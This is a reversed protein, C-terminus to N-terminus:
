GSVDLCFPAAKAIGLGAAPHGQVFATRTSHVSWKITIRMATRIFKTLAIEEATL